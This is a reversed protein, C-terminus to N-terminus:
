GKRYTLFPGGDSTSAIPDLSDMIGSPPGHPPVLSISPSERIGTRGHNGCAARARILSFATRSYRATLWDVHPRESLGRYRRTAPRIRSFPFHLPRATPPLRFRVLCTSPIRSPRNGGVTRGSPRPSIPFSERGDPRHPRVPEVFSSAFPIPGDLCDVHGPDSLGRYRRPM